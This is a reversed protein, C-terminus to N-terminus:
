LALREIAAMAASTRTEVGLKQYINELHKEVTRRGAGILDAITDDTKGKSIWFLVESQRPTLGLSQLVIPSLLKKEELLLTTKRTAANVAKSVYLESRVHDAGSRAPLGYSRGPSGKEGVWLKLKEPLNGPYLTESAFYKILLRQALDSMQLVGSNEALVIIGRASSELMGELRLETARMEKRGIVGRITNALHPAILSLLGRERESFDSGKRNVSCAVSVGTGVSLVVGMQHQVDIPRLVENYFVTNTFESYNAFDSLKLVGTNGNYIQERVLPSDFPHEEFVQACVETIRATLIEDNSHWQEPILNQTSFNDFAILDCPILGAVANLTLDSLTRLGAESNM